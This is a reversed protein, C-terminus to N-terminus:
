GGVNPAPGGLSLFFISLVIGFVFFAVLLGTIFLRRFLKSDFRLHMFWSAVLFFKIVAFVALFAVIFDRVAEIYYVAVELATVVALVAAIFVYQRPEPHEHLETEEGPTTEHHATM